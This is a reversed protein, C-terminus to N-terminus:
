ICMLTIQSPLYMFCMFSLEANIHFFLFKKFESPTVRSKVVAVYDVVTETEKGFDRNREPV